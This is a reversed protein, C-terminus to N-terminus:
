ADLMVHVFGSRGDCQVKEPKGVLLPDGQKRIQWGNRTGCANNSEAFGKIKEDDWDFPVCVQM